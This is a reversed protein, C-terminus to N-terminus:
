LLAINFTIMPRKDRQTYSSGGSRQKVLCANLKKGGKLLVTLLFINTHTTAMDRNVHLLLPAWTILNIKGFLLFFVLKGMPIM